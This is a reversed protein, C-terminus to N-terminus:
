DKLQLGFLYGNNPSSMPSATITGSSPTLDINYLTHQNSGTGNSADLYYFETTYDLASSFRFNSPTNLNAIKVTEVGTSPDIKVFSQVYGNTAQVIKVAYLSNPCGASNIYELGYYTGVAVPKPYGPLFSPNTGSANVGTNIDIKYLLNSSIIYLYTGDTTMNSIKGSNSLQYNPFTRVMAGTADYEALINNEVMFFRGNAFEMAQVNTSPYITPNPPTNNAVNYVVVKDGTSVVYRKNLKDYASSQTNFLNPFLSPSLNEPRLRIPNAIGSGITTEKMVDWLNAQGSLHSNSSTVYLYEFTSPTAPSIPDSTGDCSILSFLFSLIAFFAFITNKFSFPQHM